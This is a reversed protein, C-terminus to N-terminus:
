PAAPASRTPMPKGARIPARFPSLRDRPRSGASIPSIADQAGQPAFLIINRSGPEVTERYRVLSLDDIRGGVLAISGSLTPSEIKM